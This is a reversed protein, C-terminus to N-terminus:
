KASASRSLRFGLYDSRFSPTHGRNSVRSYRATSGWSGGRIVRYSGTSPGVPDSLSSSSYGGHWDWVWEWVNGNMDCLGYGNKKKGCVGHTKNGSNSKYWAVSGVESSGAYKTSQGGRAAYEWEAETPLRWGECSVGHFDVKATEGSNYTSSVKTSDIKAKGM